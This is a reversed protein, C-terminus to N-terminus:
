RKRFLSVTIRNRERFAVNGSDVAAPADDDLVISEALEVGVEPLPDVIAEKVGVLGIALDVAQPPVDAPVRARGRIGAPDQGSEVVPREISPSLLADVPGTFQDPLGPQALEFDEPVVADTFNFECRFAAELHLPHIGILSALGSQTILVQHHCPIHFRAAGPTLLKLIM